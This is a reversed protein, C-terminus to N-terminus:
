RHLKFSVLSHWKKKKPQLSNHKISLQIITCRGRRMVIIELLVERYLYLINLSSKTGKKSIYLDNLNRHLMVLDSWDFVPGQVGSDQYAFPLRSMSLRLSIIRSSLPPLPLPRPRQLPLDSRSTQCNCRPLTGQCDASDVSEVCSSGLILWQPAAGRHNSLSSNPARYYGFFM